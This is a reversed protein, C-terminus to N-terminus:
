GCCGCYLHPLAVTAVLRRASGTGVQSRGGVRWADLAVVWMGIRWERWALFRGLAAGRGEAGWVLRAGRM